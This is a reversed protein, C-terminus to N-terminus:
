QICKISCFKGPSKFDRSCTGRGLFILTVRGPVCISGSSMFLRSFIGILISCFVGGARLGGGGDPRLGEAITTHKAAAM